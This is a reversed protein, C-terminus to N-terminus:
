SAMRILTAKKIKGSLARLACLKEEETNEANEATLFTKIASNIKAL